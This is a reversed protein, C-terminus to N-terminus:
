VSISYYLPADRHAGVFSLLIDDTVIKGSGFFAPYDKEGFGQFGWVGGFGGDDGLNVPLNV